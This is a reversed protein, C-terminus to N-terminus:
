QAGETVARSAHLGDGPLGNLEEVSREAIGLPARRAREDPKKLGM